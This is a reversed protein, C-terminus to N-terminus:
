DVTLSLTLKHSVGNATATVGVSYKGAPTINSTQPPPTPVGGSGGGGGSCSVIGSAALALMAIFLLNKRRKHWAFPLAILGLAVPLVRWAPGIPPAQLQGSTTGQGTSIQVTVNGTANAAVTEGAPNFTCTAHAPLTDCQFAFTGSSGSMPSLTLTYRATQGSSVTQSSEGALSTTFDFGMGSLPTQVTAALMSSSATLSGSQQGAVTPAFAVSGTCSAGPALTAACTTATLQFAGSAAIALDTFAATGSNAITVSQTASVTGVGTTPFNLVSPQIQAVGAAGGAGNLALTVPNAFASSSVTLSGRANGNAIPTFVIGTTCSAGAALSTGCGNQTVSFPGTLTLTLMGAAVSSLNTIAATQSASAQGIASQTFAMQAPSVSLGSTAQGTGILPVQVAAVGITSSSVILTATSAGAAAPAFIVQVTCSSGAALTSGCTTSGTSFGAAAPGTIQFGVNAMAAGGTNSVNLASPASASGVPQVAFKIQAPNVSLSPPQLGMASLTVTQTQSADSVKLTGSQSGVQVPAFVVSIACSAHGALSGGCNDSAQFGASASAAISNLQLDGNNTLVVNQAASVQGSVTAPFTLSAPSLVDTATAAGTGSLVVTQTGAADILTLIGNAEGLQTPKFVVTIGCDSNAAILSGCANTSIAFPATTTSSSISVAAGGANVATVSKPSSTSGVAVQGLSLSGPTLSVLGASIGTGDLSATLEGGPVNASIALQGPREGSQSPTFTVQIACSAGTNIAANACNDTETFDGTVVIASLTLAIGSTNTLTLTQAASTTGVTQSAFTLSGPAITATTLQTGATWLPIQWVGRGYTAATLVNLSAMAPAASLQVVPAHPLGTGYASWCRSAATACTAIQRTSYVGNDTAIYATNADQPDIVLSNAPSSPLNSSIFVWHAGGDTSGYAVRVNHAPDPFGQVTVYVTNGTPDHPDVFISSIDLRFHNLSLTDNSVPNLTLDQWVPVASILPDYTAKLVHGALTSGGDAAGYMGAYIVEGGTALPLAAMTRILADNACSAKGKAGDLMPSIANPATWVGDAPGRWVRCTGVLLQTADLPDVIFPAPTAMSSGDGSVDADGVVPLAGFAAADCDGTQPCRHISVGAHNNVYWNAANTPDIAVPGGEGGLIQPWPAEPDTERKVGATGIVGLGTMMLNPSTAVQTMSAVEALSGLGANLNVFHSADAADCAAGTEGIADMSRWLGGDNGIFIEQPNATNWALAHQYGAVQASMCTNANTTNRWVCGSALSCKWVDNAGALLLTDSGSPIATLVLNYDGNAITAPGQITNAELVASNLQASFAVTQNSCTGTSIACQDQWIGQDQNFADVTWAFTDGTVPNVALTGRFMPCAVSGISGPNAPCLHTTLGVGPQSAMRTWIAGDASQYYGHFRVAAIFMRRVPNWVVATAANGNPQVFVDAPGQVDGGAGDTIQAMSWSAGSDASYYLGASSVNSRAANALTGEYAESVAAVVLQPNSSSWAFGAFGEGVFGYMQDATSQILSWSNGGDTSRLIGGGYYSDLADNPDGTGALIVGRGGPQVSVAGISISADRAGSLAAPSDTLPTFAVSSAPSAGGNQSFWVGGGTTGLYVSNGTPDAPDLAISSVRGTVLGYNPSTVAKPGLPRWAATAASGAAQPLPGTVAARMRVQQASAVTKGPWSRQALFRRAQTVLPPVDSQQTSKVTSAPNQALGAAVMASAILVTACARNAWQRAIVRAPSVFLRRLNVTNTSGVKTLAIESPSTM